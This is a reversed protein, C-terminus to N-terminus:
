KKRLWRAGQEKTAIVIVGVIGLICIPIAIIVMVLMMIAWIIIAVLGVILDGLVQLM